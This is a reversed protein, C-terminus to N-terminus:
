PEPKAPMQLTKLSELFPFFYRQITERLLSPPFHNNWVGSFLEDSVVMLGAAEVGRYRALSFVASAEMDAVDIRRNQMEKLWAPTERYPADTSVTIALSFSLGQHRLM